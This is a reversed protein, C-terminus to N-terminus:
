VCAAAFHCYYLSLYLLIYLKVGISRGAPARHVTWDESRFVCLSMNLVSFMTRVLLECGQM